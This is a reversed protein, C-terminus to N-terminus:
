LLRHSVGAVARNLACERLKDENEHISDSSMEEGCRDRSEEGCIGRGVFSLKRKRSLVLPIRSNLNDNM